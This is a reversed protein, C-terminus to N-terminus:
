PRRDHAGPIGLLGLVARRDGSLAIQRPSRHPMDPPATTWWRAAAAGLERRVEAILDALGPREADAEMVSEEMAAIEARLAELRDMRAEGEMVRRIMETAREAARAERAILGLRVPVGLHSAVAWLEMVDRAGTIEMARTSTMHGCQWLEIAWRQQTESAEPEGNM